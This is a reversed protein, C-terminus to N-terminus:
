AVAGMLITMEDMVSELRRLRDRHEEDAQAFAGGGQLYYDRGNQAADGLARVALRLADAADAFQEQLAARSTGNLHVTPVKIM